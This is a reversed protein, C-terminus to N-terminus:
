PLPVGSAFEAPWGESSEGWSSLSESVLREIGFAVCMSHAPAGGAQIDFRRGYADSHRNVSGVAVGGPNRWEDKARSMRQLLAAGSREGAFFPDMAEELHLELGLDRLAASVMPPVADDLASLSAATGIAVWELM